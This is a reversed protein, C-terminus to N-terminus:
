TEGVLIDASAALTRGAEESWSKGPQRDHQSLLAKWDRVGRSITRTVSDLFPTVAAPKRVTCTLLAQVTGDGRWGARRSGHGIVGELPFPFVCRDTAMGRWAEIEARGRRVPAPLSAPPRRTSMVCRGPSIAWPHWCIEAELPNEELSTWCM